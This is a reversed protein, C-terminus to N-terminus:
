FPPTGKWLKKVRLFAEAREGATALSPWPAIIALWECYDRILDDPLTKEADHMTNLDEHYKPIEGQTWGCSEAIAKDQEEPTM